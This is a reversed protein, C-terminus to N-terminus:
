FKSVSARCPHVGITMYYDESLLSLKYSDKADHISGASFLMKKVNFNSARKLVDDIDPEHYSKHGYMGKLFKEDCLNAAIDFLLINDKKMKNSFKKINCIYNLRM